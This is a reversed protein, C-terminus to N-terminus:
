KEHKGFFLFFLTYTGWSALLSGCLGFIALIFAQWGFTGFNHILQSNSGISLGFIFLLLLITLSITKETKRLFSLNRFFYGIAIGALMFCLISLM